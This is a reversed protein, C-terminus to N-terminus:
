VVFHNLEKSSLQNKSIIQFLFFGQFEKIRLLYDGFTTEYLHYTEEIDTNYFHFPSINTEECEQSIWGSQYLCQKDITKYFLLTQKNSIIKINNIWYDTHEGKLQFKYTQILKNLKSSPQKGNYSGDTEPNCKHYIYM